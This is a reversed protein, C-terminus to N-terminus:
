EAPPAAAHSYEKAPRPAARRSLFRSWLVPILAPAVWKEDEGGRTLRDQRPSRSEDSDLLIGVRAEGTLRAAPAVGQREKTM